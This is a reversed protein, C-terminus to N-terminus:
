RQALGAVAGREITESVPMPMESSSWSCRNVRNKRDVAAVSCAM